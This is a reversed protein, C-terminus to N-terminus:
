SELDPVIKNSCKTVGRMRLLNAIVNETEEQLESNLYYGCLDSIHMKELLAQRQESSLQELFSLTPSMCGYASFYLLSICMSFLFKNM